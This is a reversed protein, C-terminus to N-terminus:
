IPLAINLDCLSDHLNTEALSKGALRNKCVVSAAHAFMSRKLSVFKNHEKDTNHREVLTTVNSKGRPTDDRSKVQSIM